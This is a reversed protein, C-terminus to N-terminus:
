QTFMEIEKDLRKIEEDPNPDLTISQSVFEIRDFMTNKAARGSVKVIHGLLDYKVGEFDVPHDKFHLVQEKTKKLLDDMQNRFLVLRTTGTGDDLVINLVYGYDPKVVGHIQCELGNESSKIRKQCEPCVEYFKPEFVQVITGMLEVNADADQLDKIQKRKIENGSIANITIGIPNVIVKSKDNLHLEKRGMTNEKVYASEIKIVDGEKFQNFGDTQMGWLVARIIGSEDGMLFSAVKSTREDRVFERLEYKKLVKGVTEVNRMGALINKVKLQGTTQEFLKIGLENAIIHAAGERSILGSLQTLKNDIRKYIEDEPLQSNSKIKEIIEPLPLKFM